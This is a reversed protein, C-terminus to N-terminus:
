ADVNINSTLFINILIQVENADPKFHCGPAFVTQFQVRESDETNTVVQRGIKKTM